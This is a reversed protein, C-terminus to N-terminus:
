AIDNLPHFDRPKGSYDGRRIVAVAAEWRKTDGGTSANHIAQAVEADSVTSTKSYFLIQTRASDRGVIVVYSLADFEWQTLRTRDIWGAVQWTRESHDVVKTGKTPSTGALDNLLKKVANGSAWAAPNSPDRTTADIGYTSSLYNRLVAGGSGHEVYIGYGVTIGTSEIVQNKVATIKGNSDKQYFKSPNNWGDILDGSPAEMRALLAFGAESMRMNKPDWFMLAADSGDEVAVYYYKEYFGLLLIGEGCAFGAAPRSDSRTRRKISRM